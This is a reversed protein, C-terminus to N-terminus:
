DTRGEPSPPPNGASPRTDIRGTYPGFAPHPTTTGTSEHFGGEDSRQLLVFRPVPGFRYKSYVRWIVETPVVTSPTLAIMGDVIHELTRPGAFDEDKTEHCIILIACNQHRALAVLMNCVAVMRNGDHPEYLNMNQLSDIVLVAPRVVAVSRVVDLVNQTALAYVRGMDLGLRVVAMKIHALMQETTVYLPMTPGVRSMRACLQLALTSKGIGPGGHVLMVAGRPLGGNLSNEIQPFMPISLRPLDSVSVDALLMAPGDVQPAKTVYQWIKLCEGCLGPVLSTLGCRRCFYTM